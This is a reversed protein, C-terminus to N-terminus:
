LYMDASVSYCNHSKLLMCCVLHCDARPHIHASVRVRLLPLPLCLQLRCLGRWLRRLLQTRLAEVQLLQILLIFEKSSQHDALNNCHCATLQYTPTMFTEYLMSVAIQTMALPARSRYSVASSGQAVIQTQQQTGVCMTRTGVSDFAPCWM